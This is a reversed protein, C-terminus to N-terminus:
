TTSQALKKMYYVSRFYPMFGQREYMRRAPTYPDDSGTSVEAFDMGAAEMLRLVRDLLQAGIGKGRYEPLVANDSVMGIRTTEDLEYTAFGVAKGDAEAVIVRSVDITRMIDAEWEDWSRGGIVGFQEERSRNTTVDAFARVILDALTERDAEVAQRIEVNTAELTM